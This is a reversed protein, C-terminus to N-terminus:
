TPLSRDWLALTVALALSVVLLAADAVSAILPPRLRPEQLRYGRSLMAQYVRESREQARTLLVGLLRGYTAVSHWDFLARRPAFARARRAVQMRRSEGGLVETYRLTFGILATFIGPVRLGALGELLSSVGLRAVTAALLLAAAALRLLAALGETLGASDASLLWPGVRFSFLAQGGSSSFVVAAALLGGFPLAWLARRLHSLSGTASLSAGLAVAAAALAPQLARLSAVSAVYLLVALLLAAPSFTRRTEPVQM